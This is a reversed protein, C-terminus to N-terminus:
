LVLVIHSAGKVPASASADDVDEKADVVATGIHVPKLWLQMHVPLAVAAGPAPPSQQSSKESVSANKSASSEVGSATSEVALQRPTSSSHSASTSGCTASTSSRESLKPPASANAWPLAGRRSPLETPSKESSANSSTSAPASSNSNNAWPLPSSTSAIQPPTSASAPTTKSLATNAWPFPSPATTNQTDGQKRAEAVAREAATLKRKKKLQELDREAFM